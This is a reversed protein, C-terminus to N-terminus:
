DRGRPACDYLATTGGRFLNRLMGSMDGAMMNVDEPRGTALERPLWAAAPVEVGNERVWRAIADGGRPPGLRGPGRDRALLVYRLEGRGVLARFQDFTVAPDAGQFGGYAIARVGAEVILPAVLHIDPSAVLFNARGAGRLLYDLLARIAARNRGTEDPDHRAELLQPDAVPVMRGGGAAAPTWSWTAPCLLLTALGTALGTATWVRSARGWAIILIAVALGSGVLTVPVLVKGWEPTHGLILVQVFATVAVAAVARGLRPAILESGHLPLAHNQLPGPQPLGSAGAVDAATVPPRDQDSPSRPESSRASKRPEPCMAVVGIGALIAIPPALMNLYYPHIPGSAASFVVAFTGLWVVWLLLSAARVSRRPGPGIRVATTAGLIAFPLLWSGHGALDRNGLRLVSPMGGHGTLNQSPRGAVGPPSGPPGFPPGGQPGVPPGIPGGPLGALPGLRPPGAPGGGPGRRGILRDLGFGSLAREIASNNVTGGIYPRSEARSLDVSLPWALSAASVVLGAVGLHLVRAGTSRPGCALYAVSLAPLIMWAVIMKTTFGVGVLLAGALLWLWRDQEVARLVTWAALLSVLLLFSDPLNSRDAAVAAPFVAMVLAAAVGAWAGGAWRALAYVLLVNLIGILAQPLHLVLGSYGFLKVCLVQVWFAAPPKDLTVVGAPDFAAYFCNAWSESMSRVAAAYYINGFDHGGLNWLRTAAAVLLVLVLASRALPSCRQSSSM